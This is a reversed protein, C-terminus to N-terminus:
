FALNYNNELGPVLLIAKASINGISSQLHALVLYKVFKSVRISVFNSPILPALFRILVSDINSDHVYYM